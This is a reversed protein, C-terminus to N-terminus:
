KALLLKSDEDMKLIVNGALSPPYKGKGTSLIVQYDLDNPNELMNLCDLMRKLNENDIGINEPTDVLLIRPFPIDDLLSLQLLTLYYLFRKHVAASAEKYSGDNIRPMYDDSSIEAVRCEPLSAKMFLNYYKNFESVKEMLEKESHAELRDVENRALDMSNKASDKSSQYAQLNEELILAQKFNNIKEKNKLLADEIDDLEDFDTIYEIENLAKSLLGKNEVSQKKLANYSDNLQNYEVNAADLAIKMTELSKVKSKLLTYYEGPDYFYRRYDSEDIDHGCVCKDSPRDVNKLCYPCTDPTFMELQKHTHIIKQLRFADERTQNTVRNISDIDKLKLEIKKEIELLELEAASFKEKLRQTYILGTSSAIKSSLKQSRFSILKENRLELEEIEKSLHYDNIVETIGLQRYMDTIINKYESLVASTKEYESQKRKLDGHAKYLKSLTKGMMVEFIAKRLFVSDSVFNQADAPKYIGNVDTGQNHYVLRLLNNFGIKYNKGSHFIEISPINLRELIWDSFIYDDSKNRNIALCLFDVLEDTNSEFPEDAIITILNESIKRILKYKKANLLVELEVFNSKDNVIENHISEENITFHPVKGGLAYYILDLFTSKGCGNPAEIINIKHKELEPSSFYYRKGEYHMKLIKLQGM